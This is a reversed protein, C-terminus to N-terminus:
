KSSPSHLLAGGIRHEKEGVADCGRKGSTLHLRYRHAIQPHANVTAIRNTRPDEVGTRVEARGTGSPVAVHGRILDVGIHVIPDGLSGPSELRLAYLWLLQLREDFAGM